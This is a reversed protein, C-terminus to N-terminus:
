LVFLASVYAVTETNIGIPIGFDIYIPRSFSDAFISPEVVELKVGDDALLNM